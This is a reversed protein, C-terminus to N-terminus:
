KKFHLLGIVVAILAAVAVSSLAMVISSKRLVVIYCFLFVLTFGMTIVYTQLKMFWGIQYRDYGRRMIDRLDVM